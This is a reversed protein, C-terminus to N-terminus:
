FQHEKAVSYADRLKNAYDAEALEHLMTVTDAGGYQGAEAYDPDVLLAALVRLTYLESASWRVALEEPTIDNGEKWRKHITPLVKTYAVSVRDVVGTGETLVFKDNDMKVHGSQLGELLATFKSSKGSQVSETLTNTVGQNNISLSGDELGKKVNMYSKHISTLNGFAGWEELEKLEPTPEVTEWEGAGDFWSTVEIVEKDKSELMEIIAKVTSPEVQTDGTIGYDRVWKKISERPGPYLSQRNNRIREIMYSVIEDRHKIYEKQEESTVMYM